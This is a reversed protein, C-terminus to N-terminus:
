RGRVPYDHRYMAMMELLQIPDRIFTVGKSSPVAYDKHCIDVKKKPRKKPLLEQLKRHFFMLAQGSHLSKGVVSGVHDRLNRVTWEMMKSRDRICLKLEAVIAKSLFKRCLLRAGKAWKKIQKRRTKRMKRNNKEFDVVQNDASEPGAYPVFPVIALCPVDDHGRNLQIFRDIM